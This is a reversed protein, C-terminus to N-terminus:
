PSGAIKSHVSAHRHGVVIRLRQVNIVLTPVVLATGIVHAIFVNRFKM